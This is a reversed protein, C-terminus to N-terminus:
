ETQPHNVYVKSVGQSTGDVYQEVQQASYVPFATDNNDNTLPELLTTLQFPSTSWAVFGLVPDEICNDIRVSGSDCLLVQTENTDYM